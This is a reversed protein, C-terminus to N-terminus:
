WFLQNLGVNLKGKTANWSYFLIDHLTVWVQENYEDFISRAFVHKQSDFEMNKPVM